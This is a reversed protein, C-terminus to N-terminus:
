PPVPLTANIGLRRLEAQALDHHRGAALDEVPDSTIRRLDSWSLHEVARRALLAQVAGGDGAGHLATRVAAVERRRALSSPLYLVLGTGAPAIGVALVSLVSLGRLGRGQM